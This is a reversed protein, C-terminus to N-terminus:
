DYISEVDWDTITGNTANIEFEYKMEDYVITGEYVPLGDDYDLRIRIDADTAGAVNALALQRASAEDITVEGGPAQRNNTESSYSIIEGNQANIDYDYEQAGSVFEVEYIQRGDDWDLHSHLWTVDAEALGAHALAAARAQDETIGAAVTTSAATEAATAAPTNAPATPVETAAAQNAAETPATTAETTAETSQEESASTATTTPTTTNPNSCATLGAALVLASLSIILKTKM